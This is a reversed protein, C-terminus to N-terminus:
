RKENIKRFIEMSNSNDEVDVWDTEYMNANFGVIFTKIKKSYRSHHWWMQSSNKSDIKLM